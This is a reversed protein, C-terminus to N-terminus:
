VNFVDAANKGSGGSTEKIGNRKFVGNGFECLYDICVRNIEASKRRRESQLTNLSVSGMRMMFVWCRM